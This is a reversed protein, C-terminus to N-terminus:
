QCRSGITRYGDMCSNLLRPRGNAANPVLADSVKNKPIGRKTACATKHDKPGHLGLSTLDIFKAWEPHHGM